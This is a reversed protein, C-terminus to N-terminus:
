SALFEGYHDAAAKQYAAAAQEKKSFFGLHKKKGNLMIQAHWVRNQKNWYVGKAGSTNTAWLGQNGSQQQTTALRLNEIRNDNPDRNIHDITFDGPDSGTAFLWALRHANWRQGNLRIRRYGSRTEIRGAVQGKRGRGKGKCAVWTFLGTEPDYSLFKKLEELPPLAKFKAM